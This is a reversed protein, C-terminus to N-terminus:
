SSFKLSMLLKFSKFKSGMADMERDLSIEVELPTVYVFSLPTFAAGNALLYSDHQDSGPNIFTFTNTNDFLKFGSSPRHGPALPAFSFANVKVSEISKM